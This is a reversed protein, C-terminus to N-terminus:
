QGVCEVRSSTRNVFLSSYGPQVAVAFGISAPILREANDNYICSSITPHKAATFIRRSCAPSSDPPGRPEQLCLAEHKTDKSTRCSIKATMAEDTNCCVNLGHQHSRAAECSRDDFRKGNLSAGEDYKVASNTTSGAELQHSPSVEAENSNGEPTREVRRRLMHGPFISIRKESM